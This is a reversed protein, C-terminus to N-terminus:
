LDLIEDLVTTLNVKAYNFFDFKLENSEVEKKNLEKKNINASGNEKDEKNIKAKQSENECISIAQDFHEFIKKSMYVDKNTIESDNFIIQYFGHMNNSKFVLSKLNVFKKINEINQRQSIIDFNIFEFKITHVMNYFEKYGLVEIANGFLNLQREREIEAHCLQM